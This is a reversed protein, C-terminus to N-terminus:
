RLGCCAGAQFAFLPCDVNGLIGIMPMSSSKTDVDAAAVAAVVVGVGFGVDFDALFDVFLGIPIDAM